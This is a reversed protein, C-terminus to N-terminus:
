FFGVGLIPYPITYPISYIGPIGITRVIDLQLCYSRLCVKFPTEFEPIKM